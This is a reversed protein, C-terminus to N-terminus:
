ALLMQPTELAYREACPELDPQSMQKMCDDTSATNSLQVQLAYSRLNNLRTRARQIRSLTLGSSIALLACYIHSCSRHWFVLLRQNLICELKSAAKEDNVSVRNMRVSPPADSNDYLLQKAENRRSELTLRLVIASETKRTLTPWEDATATCSVYLHPM